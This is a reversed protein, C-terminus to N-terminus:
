LELGLDSVRRERRAQSLVTHRSTPTSRLTPGPDRIIQRADQPGRELETLKADALRAATRQLAIESRLADKHRARSFRGTRKLERQAQELKREADRRTKSLVLRQKEVISIQERQEDTIASRAIEARTQHKPGSPMPRQDVALREIASEELAQAFRTAPDRDDLDHFHSEREHVSATVYVKTEERARSLAVYGWEQLRADGTGLVFVRDVTVGQGSHGTLAYAHRVHGGGLYQRTLEVQNGRDTTVVLTRREQDVSEVSGRTGNKVELVVDNRLCVVRDGAAFECGNVTFRDSGLRGHTEMLERALANLEAVDRRRLAIMINSALDDHAASWWDALLRIRMEIPNDSVVLRARKEAFVLYDRGLGNRVAALAGRELTDHQRHNETLEIAGHREVIGAFLGGAGVAPLQHGDGILLAKGKAQELRELLPTLIRTEAMGAEDIVLLCGAPLGGESEGILRHLTTSRIGTADQLKEAAVGSPAAGLVPVGAARFAEAVAHTATTKGSGALGVVCVVRDRSACVARVMAEQEASLLVGNREAVIRQVLDESVRPAGIGAGREAIALARLETQILEATSYRAPRGPTPSEGVPEIGDTAVFRASLRRIREVPAGQAVAEAWAMVLEPESFATRRETLGNPGLLRNAMERLEATTPERRGSRHVLQALAARGLGHEAARARWDERLTALDIHEKPERTEVAARQAAYFGAAGKERMQEVLQQRRTSFERIVERSIGRLEAWGKAPVEWEVGLSSSLEFRLHAEYLYGAALRYNKLIAEGDLARWKADTPSQAINAVIVHTHLHPDQARSTRHQYAAAVFGRGYERIVGNRGRRVVCAEEELYALAAQWAALHAENVGRRTEEDGLAHLLSISKPVSFVLDFGAVPLLKKQQIRREDTYPNIREVTIVRAKSHSRLREQTLPHLGCILAGLQGEAVVGELGLEAAGRGTWVGPSEGRGAYYDDLGAAVSREYYREQGPTLKAVSLVVVMRALMNCKQMMHHMQTEREM